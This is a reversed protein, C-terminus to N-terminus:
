YVSPSLIGIPLKHLCWAYQFGTYGQAVGCYYVVSELASLTFVLKNSDKVIVMRKLKM